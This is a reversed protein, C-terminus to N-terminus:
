RSFKFNARHYSGDSLKVVLQRCTNAWSKDTKWVYSYRDSETDYTLGSAGASVTEEIGLVPATSSCAITESKPYGAAFIAMGQYGGLSFKVPIARGASVLNLTPLNDVPQFFGSFSYAPTTSVTWTYTAPTPDSNGAADIARVTFSHSGDSLGTYSQPSACSTFAGSDLKCQFSSGSESASFGFSASSSNSPNAPQSSITTEPAATDITWTYAAPSPDSNGAPDISRVTFSHSGDSLGNFSLPSACAAFAGSDLKCEFGSDSEGSSFSFSASSSNSLAPPASDIVTIPAATDITWTYTAPSPDTNGAPDIARVAFSHSGDSLGTYSQPSTCSTFAGGDLKCQFSSGSKTAHFSFSANGSNSLAPPASDIVTIPAVTDITWTYAAPTPDTNGAADIARVTFSHSGDSLGTYSVPNDCAAFAGSDLKCQFGGGSESSSFGFSATTNNSLSPPASDITTEPAATDITWAFSAPNPDTNGAADIARVTFSHSGDSLGTYSQPSTCSTFAGGDLKCQFSGTESSSFSFSANGSNSLAPPASSITTAPASTDITWTFSAPSSDSNGALDTARVAFSHNGDSLGNFSLPSACAAFAASDLKCQFSGGSESSSFGFSASSSNSLAPPASDITTEPAASDIMVTATVLPSINGARDVARVSVVTTGQASVTVSASSSQTVIVNGGDIWYRLEKIGTGSDSGSLNVTVPASQHYGNSNPAPSAIATASPPTTDASAPAPFLIAGSRAALTISLNGGSVTYTTGSLADQLTTGNAFYAGVPVSATNAGAGNNLAVIAQEGGGVRAFAYTSNDSASATTDGTLLTSISGTRLAPHQQRLHALTSYYSIMGSDAPGYVSPNGSEDAWPYPARNYPDDEPGNSGNGLSPSNLAAEDGYYITPAGLYAFQFLATLRLREKAETLGNDGLLTLVYLARNTDHSDILNLMAATAQPPYDERVSRLAQDFQSPTLPVITNSGNNDNDNWQASGRAFGLINKRFRYNMVSDLQDGLLFKSADYWVEGVLPGDSQDAKAYPRFDRWWDHSIEDAVDFRWGGVGRDYWHQVVNEAGTRYIFDRVAASDDKLVALSDYGFWGAYDSSGCPVNASSFEYWSRYQSGLSECAGASSYRSYRDFYLSDSSTHNFVGDLILYMGRREMERILSSFAADGGLAPDVELYNDTDYRHNSRAKFIPTLYLTDIGLAQLYDLKDEIGKLDGGFFQTGYTNFYEGPQRPDGIAENWTTHAIAPQNGYFTPCGTTAGPRCYDNTPDGNRFRDPFIQYVNANQLWGPTQFAPDYVTIQFSPFPENDSPTGAGGQRLNDHDDAYDDSYWDEDQRDQVRFKYYLIAPTAPTALTYSWIAYSTGNEVRDELFSLPYDAPGATSNTAPNYQYVRLSVGDVDLRETRFRLTVNSGAPVAGFPSRYYSDFTDHRLGSWQIDGNDVTYSWNFGTFGYDQGSQNRTFLQYRVQTGNSQAPIDARWNAPSPGSTDFTGLVKVYSSGVNYELGATEGFATDSQMWVRVSQASSPTAPVQAVRHRFSAAFSRGAPTFVSSALIVLLMLVAPPRRM